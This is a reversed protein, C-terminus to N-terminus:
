IATLIERPNLKFYSKFTQIKFEFVKVAKRFEFEKKAIGKKKKKIIM